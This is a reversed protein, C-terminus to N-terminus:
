PAALWHPGLRYGRGNFHPRHRRNTPEYSALSSPRCMRHPHNDPCNAYNETPEHENWELM